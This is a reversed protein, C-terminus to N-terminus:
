RAGSDREVCFIMYHSTRQGARLGREASLIASIAQPLQEGQSDSRSLGTCILASPALATYGICSPLLVSSLTKLTDFTIQPPELAVLKTASIAHAVDGSSLLPFSLAAPIVPRFRQLELRMRKQLKDRLFLAWCFMSALV